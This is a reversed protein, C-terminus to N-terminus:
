HPLAANLATVNPVVSDASQLWPRTQRQTMLEILGTSRATFRISGHGATTLLPINLAKLRAQTIRSPHGYRNHFGASAVALKPQYYKLFAYASSHRSGHHGLILVDVKLDPYDQLLQFETQWGADGMILFNQYPQVNKVQIYVVCSLENQQYPVQALQSAKPSLIKIEVHESWHWIQGQKCYDFRSKSAVDLQQNSYVQNISLENKLTTYSGSHDQDLHTLILSDLESVGQKSLFPQIVQKAISFKTEDYSGGVDFMAHQQDDQMYVAQGQGVDLVILEFPHQKASLGLLPFVSLVVWTKPLTSKPMFIISLVVILLIIQWVNLAVSLLKIPLMDDLLHLISLLFLLVWDALQFLLSSLPEFVYFTFAALVDLPVVVLGILPIAVLNSIPSIWSVQKFFIIVLPLLAVFIKWQSEILLKLAFILQQQWTQSRSLDLRITTQYIRLLVFCAGYSLWFAASLISFPDFLLLLSASLLLLTLASIKQRLWVLATLCFCSLLTRMAPIEFGVFACYLLVCLFFPLLLLYPRPVILFIRSYFRNVGKQLLWCFMVAFILVHPGSIALLHSIGFRQFFITTERDLFSEDGTLLALILGKHSLPQIYIFNRIKLRQREIGLQLQKFITQQKRLHSAYGLAYIEAESLPQIQKLKFGSMLNRQLYWQELDFVGQVAYSHAPRIEGTLRYYKGLELVAQQDSIRKQFSLWQVPQEHRNLVQIEQQITESGLQNIKAIYVIVKTDEVRIEKYALRQQLASQAYYYGATLFLMFYILGCIFQLILAPKHKFLFFQLPLLGIVLILAPYFLHNLIPVSQGMLAIGLIWAVAYLLKM